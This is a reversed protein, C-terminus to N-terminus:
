KFMNKIKQLNNKVQNEYKPNQIKKNYYNRNKYLFSNIYNAPLTDGDAIETNGLLALEELLAFNKIFKISDIKRCDTLVLRKLEPLNKLVSFDCIKPCNNFELTNINRLGNLGEISALKKCNAFLVNELNILNKIGSINVITSAKIKLEVLTNLLSIKKFDSENFDVVSLYKLKKCNELGQINQRWDLSLTELNVQSSLDILNKNSISLGINLHKLNKLFILFEFNQDNLCDIDIKELFNYDKLFSLDNLPNLHDFIRLGNLGHTEIINRVQEASYNKKFMLMNGYPSIEIKKEKM